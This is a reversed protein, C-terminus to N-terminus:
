TRKSIRRWDWWRRPEVALASRLVGRPGEEWRFAGEALIAAAEDRVAITVGLRGAAEAGRRDGM